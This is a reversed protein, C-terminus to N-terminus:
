AAQHPRLFPGVHSMYDRKGIALGKHRLIDYATVVHFYFNPLSWRCIFHLGDAELVLPGELRMEVKRNEAGALAQPKIAAVSESTERILTRLGDFTTEDLHPGPPPEQGILRAMGDRAQYCALRVQVHFPFMDPALRANLLESPDMSRDRCNREAKDLLESLTTLVAVFTEASIVGIFESM